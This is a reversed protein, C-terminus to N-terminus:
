HDRRIVPTEEELVEGPEQQSGVKDDINESHEIEVDRYLHNNDKLWHLARILLPRRVSFYTQRSPIEAQESRGARPPAILVVGANDLTKPLSQCIESTNVPFNITQGKLARQGYPLVVLKMFPQVLSILRKEMNNLCSLESPIPSVQM